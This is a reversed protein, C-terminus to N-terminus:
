ALVENDPLRGAIPTRTKSALAELVLPAAAYLVHAADLSRGRETRRTPLMVRLQGNDNEIAGGCETVFRAAAQLTPLPKGALNSVTVPAAARFGPL